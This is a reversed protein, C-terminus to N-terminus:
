RRPEKLFTKLAFNLDLSVMESNWNTSPWGDPGCGRRWHRRWHELPFPASEPLSEAAEKLSPACAAAAESLLGKAGETSQRLSPKPVDKPLTEEGDGRSGGPRSWRAGYDVMLVLGPSVEWIICLHVARSTGVPRQASVWQRAARLLATPFSFFPQFPVTCFLFKINLM